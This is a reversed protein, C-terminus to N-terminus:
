KKKLCFVAYSIRMLSQLESTHARGIEADGADVGVQKCAAIGLLDVVQAREEQQEAARSEQRLRAVRVAATEVGNRQGFAAVPFALDGVVQAFAHEVLQEGPESGGDGAVVRLGRPRQAPLCQVVLDSSCVDSSWDSIRM